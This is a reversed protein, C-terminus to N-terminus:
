AACPACGRTKNCNNLVNIMGIVSDVIPVINNKVFSVVQMIFCGVKRVGSKIQGWFGKEQPPERQVTSSQHKEEGIGGLIALTSPKITHDNNM